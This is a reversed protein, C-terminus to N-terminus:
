PDSPKLNLEQHTRWNKRPNTLIQERALRATVRRIICQGASSNPFNLIAVDGFCRKAAEDYAFAAAIETPFWGLFVLAKSDDSRTKGACIYAHWCFGKRNEWFVRLYASGCILSDRRNGAQAKHTAWRCNRPEYNGNNDIRELTLGRRYTFWMDSWFNEFLSWAPCVRIGRGGYHHYSQHDPNECRRLM